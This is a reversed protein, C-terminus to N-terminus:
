NGLRRRAQWLRLMTVPGLVLSIAVIGKEVAMEPTHDSFKDHQLDYALDMLGLFTLGSGAAIGVPVAGSRGQSLLRAALLSAAFLYGDAILFSKEFDVYADDESTRLRGSTLFEAWYAAIVGAGIGIVWAHIRDGTPIPRSFTTTM